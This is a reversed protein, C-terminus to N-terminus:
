RCSGDKTDRVGTDRLGVSLLWVVEGESLATRCHAIASSHFLVVSPASMDFDTVRDLMFTRLVSPPDFENDPLQRKICILCNYEYEGPYDIHASCDQGTRDYFLYEYKGSLALQTGISSNLWTLFEVNNELMKRAHSTEASRIQRQGRVDTPRREGAEEILADLV